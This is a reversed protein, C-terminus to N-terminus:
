SQRSKWVDGYPIGTYCSFLFLDRVHYLRSDHLPTTMLRHLEESTLFKQERRPKEAEYGAFPDATIIGDTIAESVIMKLRTTHFGVTAIALRRKTRLYVDYKDIFSRDIATFPIDSLKYEKELFETLCRYTYRYSKLTAHARNVGVRKAFTEIFTSFYGMLTEQGFAMGQILCKVDDATVNMRVSSLEQYLSLCGARIEDLQRNIERSASSKGTARGLMWAKPSASLKASFAAESYRGINIRGMVPCLGDESMESKKLYFSVKLGSQKM